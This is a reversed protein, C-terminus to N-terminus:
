PSCNSRPGVESIEILKAFDRESIRRVASAAIFQADLALSIVELRTLETERYRDGVYDPFRSLKALLLQDDRHNKEQVMKQGLKILNHGFLKQNKLDKEAIGLHLLTGKLALEVTLCIPQLIPSSISSSQSLSEAVSRLQEAALKWLTSSNGRNEDIGYVLDHMDAFAFASKMAIENNGRCWQVWEQHNSFGLGKDITINVTGYAIDITVKKVRDISAVLGTGMGPWTYNVEPILQQYVRRIEVSQPTDWEEITFNKGLIEKVAHFPRAHFPIGRKAFDEDLELIDNNTFNIM